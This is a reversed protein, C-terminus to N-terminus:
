AASPTSEVLGQMRNSKVLDRKVGRLLATQFMTLEPASALQRAVWADAVADAVAKDQAARV